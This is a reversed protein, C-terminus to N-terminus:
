FKNRPPEGAGGPAGKYSGFENLQIVGWFRTGRQKSIQLKQSYQMNTSMGSAANRALISSKNDLLKCVYKPKNNNKDKILSQQRPTTTVRGPITNTGNTGSGPACNSMKIKLLSHIFIYQTYLLVYIIIDALIDHTAYLRFFISEKICM